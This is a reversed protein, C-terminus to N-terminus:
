APPSPASAERELQEIWDSFARAAGAYGHEATSTVHERGHIVVISGGLDVPGTSRPV